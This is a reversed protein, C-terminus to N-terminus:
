PSPKKRRLVENGREVKKGDGLRGLYDAYKRAIRPKFALQSFRDTIVDFDAESGFQALTGVIEEALTGRAPRSLRKRAEALAAASDMRGLANLAEGAASYSSDDLEGLIVSRYTSGYDPLLRIAYRRVLSNEDRTAAEAVLPEMATKLPMKARALGLLTMQRIGAYPDKLGRRVLEVAIPDDSHQLAWAVAERRDIFNGAHDYQYALEAPGKRDTKEWLVLKEADVNVLFPRKACPFSFTDATHRMWVPYRRKGEASFVDVFFPVTFPREQTQALLVRMMAASSDYQYDVTVKPHGAGFFWEDFFWNLDRGSVEEMALRLQHVEVSKFANTRIYLQLGKIFASDGLHARLMNLVLAGKNYSIDDFVDDPESWTTRVLAKGANDPNRLYGELQGYWEEMAADEGHRRREWLFEGFRAMSENLTLNSWSECTVYDGCWQHFLEHAINDEWRNGDVLERRDQEAAAGHATATTNEMATSTLDQLVVQSYKVWPFPVGTVQEFFAMMAPTEGFIGRASSGYASDVYYSVEKGRYQDKVISWNGIAFFFLYPAHPLEMRWDDTRTGDSHPVQGALRGNSLTQYRAPVTLLMEVTSRQSPNDMTPCWMSAKEAESDTWIQTPKHPDAGTPNIFYLGRHDNSVKAEAPKAIYVIRVRYSETRRYERPLRIRLKWGDYGFPAPKAVAGELVEVSSVTMQKADLTLSDTPYFHPRLTIEEKGYAYSHAYDFRLELRTHVLDNGGQAAAFGSMGALVVAFLVGRM